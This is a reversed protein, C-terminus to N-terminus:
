HRAEGNRVGCNLLKAAIDEQMLSVGQDWAEHTVRNGGRM